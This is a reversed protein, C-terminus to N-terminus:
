NSGDKGNIDCVVACFALVAKPLMEDENYDFCGNHNPAETKGLIRMMSARGGQEQVRKMMYSYDESGTMTMRLKPQVRLGGLGDTVDKIQKMFSVDSELSPCSGAVITESSCEYMEAAAKIIRYASKELFDNIKDTEGRVEIQMKAIDPIVNRGTGAHLTGVNIRTRGDSHRSIAALNLAATAAALLANKGHEPAAGAHASRGHYVVDIKTTALAGGSGPWFDYGMDDQNKRGTLHCALVTKVGDLHGNEVISRAGRVGEEAPQFILKISGRLDKKHRM